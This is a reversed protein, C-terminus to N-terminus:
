QDMKAGCHPCYKYWERAGESECCESCILTKFYGDGLTAWIWRGHVVEVADVTPLVDIFDIVHSSDTEFKGGHELEGLKLQQLAYNVDILRKKITM